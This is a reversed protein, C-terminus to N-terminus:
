TSTERYNWQRNISVVSSKRPRLYSVLVISTICAASSRPPFNLLALPTTQGRGRTAKAERATGYEMAYNTSRLSTNITVIYISRVCVMDAFQNLGLTFSHNGANHEQIRASNELWIQRRASEEKPHAYFKGHTSKWSHWQEDLPRSFVAGALALLFLANMSRARTSNVISGREM